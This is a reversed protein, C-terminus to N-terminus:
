ILLETLEKQSPEDQSNLGAVALQELGYTNALIVLHQM